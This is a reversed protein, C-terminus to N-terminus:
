RSRKGTSRRTGCARRALAPPLCPAVATKRGAARARREKLLTLALFAIPINTIWRFLDDLCDASSDGGRAVRIATAVIAFISAATYTAVFPVAVLLVILSPLLGVALTLPVTHGHLLVLASPLTVATSSALAVPIARPGLLPSM